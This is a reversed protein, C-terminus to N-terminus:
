SVLDFFRLGSFDVHQVHTIHTSIKIESSRKQRPGLSVAIGGMAPRFTVTAYQQIFIM